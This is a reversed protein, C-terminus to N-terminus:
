KRRPISSAPTVFRLGRPQQADRMILREVGLKVPQVHFPSARRIGCFSNSVFGEEPNSSLLQCLPQKLFQCTGGSLTSSKGWRLGTTKGKRRDGAVASLIPSRIM